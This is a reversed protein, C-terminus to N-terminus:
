KGELPLCKQVYFKGEGDLAARTMDLLFPDNSYLRGANLDKFISLQTNLKHCKVYISDLAQIPEMLSRDRLYPTNCEVCHGKATQQSRLTDIGKIDSSSFQLDFAHAAVPKSILITLSLVIATLIILNSLLASYQELTNLLENTCWCLIELTLLKIMVVGAAKIWYTFYARLGCTYLFPCILLLNLM